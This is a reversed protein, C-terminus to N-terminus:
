QGLLHNFPEMQVFGCLRLSVAQADFFDPFHWGFLALGSQHNVGHAIRQVAFGVAARKNVMQVVVLDGQTQHHPQIVLIRVQRRKFFKLAQLQVGGDAGHQFTAAANSVTRACQHFAAQLAQRFQRKGAAHQHAVARAKQVHRADFAAVGGHFGGHQCRFGHEGQQFAVGFLLRCVAFRRRTILAQELLAPQILFQVGDAVDAWREFPPQNGGHHIGAQLLVHEFPPHRPRNGVVARVCAAQVGGFFIRGDLIRFGIAFDREVTQAAHEQRAYRVFFVLRCVQFQAVRRQRNVQIVRLVGAGFRAVARGAHIFDHLLVAAFRAQLDVRGVAQM